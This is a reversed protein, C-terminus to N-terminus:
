PREFYLANHREEAWEVFAYFADFIVAVLLVTGFARRPQSAAISASKGIRHIAPGGLKRTWIVSSM